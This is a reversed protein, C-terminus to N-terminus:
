SGTPENLPLLDILDQETVQVRAYRTHDKHNVIECNFIGRERGRLFKLFEQVLTFEQNDVIFTDDNRVYDYEKSIPAPFSTADEKIGRKVSQREPEKGM